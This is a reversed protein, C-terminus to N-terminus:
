LSIQLPPDPPVDLLQM